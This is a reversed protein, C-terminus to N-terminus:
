PRKVPVLAKVWATATEMEAERHAEMLGRADELANHPIKSKSEIRLVEMTLPPTDMRLGPGVILLRCFREIDEPWDAILHIHDFRQLYTALGFQVEQETRWDEDGILPMVNEAVWEVPDDCGIVRYFEEGHEPVLAISILEGRYGNWECDIYLNM